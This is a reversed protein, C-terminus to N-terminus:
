KKSSQTTTVPAPSSFTTVGNGNTVTPSTTQNTTSITIDRVTATPQNVISAGQSNSNVTILTAVTPLPQEITSPSASDTNQASAQLLDKNALVNWLGVTGAMSGVAVMFKIAAPVFKKKHHVSKKDM